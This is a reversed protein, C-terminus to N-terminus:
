RAGGPTLAVARADEEADDPRRLLTLAVIPFVLVSILAAGVFAAATASTLLGLQVGIQTAVVVFSLSTAQLLAAPVLQVGALLSRYLLVPLGRVLLLLIVFVPVLALARSSNLLADLDYRVGSAVFFFPIFIGFGAAELKEHHNPHTMFQDRDVLKLVAGALFAGLISELGLREALVVFAVLLVFSGRVRIQATTDQLRRLTDSLRRSHESFVVVGGVVAVFLFFAGLLVLKSGVGSDEGSFFLTLLIVTAVDAISTAALVLQGFMTTIEGTDKLVPLVVGLSTASAIIAILLPAGILGSADLGFALVLAIGFSAIFAVLTVRLLRGRLMDFEIELGSLFLLFAIGLLSMLRVPEDIEVWGLVSPGIVIGLVIELVVAPLRLAPVLGLTFPAAFAVAAIILLNGFEGM